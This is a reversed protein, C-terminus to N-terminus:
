RRGTLEIHPIRAWRGAGVKERDKRSRAFAGHDLLDSIAWAPVIVTMASHIEVKDGEAVPDGRGELRVTASAKRFEITDWYQGCHVGLLRLFHEGPDLRVTRKVAAELDSGFNRYCFVPSGSYGTRSRMDGIHSPRLTGFHNPVPANPNAVLSINGFRGSPVNVDGGHQDAFLGLMFLDEGVGIEFDGIFKTTIFGYEPICSVADTAVILDDTIDAIALDDKGSVYLWDDPAKEIFRHKGDFTNIRIVPSPASIGPVKRTVHQNSVAYYHHPEGHHTAPRAVICGTGYPGEYGDPHKPSKRYLFFSAELLRRNIQPMGVPVWSKSTSGDSRQVVVPVREFELDGLDVEHIKWRGSPTSM